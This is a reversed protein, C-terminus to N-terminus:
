WGPSVFRRIASTTTILLISVASGCATAVTAALTAAALGVAVMTRAADGTLRMGPGDSAPLRTSTTSSPGVRVWPLMAYPAPVTAARCAPAVVRTSGRDQATPEIASVKAAYGPVPSTSGAM